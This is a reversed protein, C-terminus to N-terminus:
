PVSSDIIVSRIHSPFDRMVAQALLSGYSGGFLNVQDYGLALRIAEVDAANQATNYLALNHGDAVLREQCATLSEYVIRQVAGPDPEDLIDFLAGVFEPCELAPKSSGVGRQDFFVLDRDANFSGLHDALPAAHVVTKEGPGGSLFILPDPQSQEDQSKFIVTALHITESSSNRHDEPVIVYGCEVTEGEIHNAPIEFFCATQEFTPTFSPSTTATPESRVASGTETEIPKLPATSNIPLDADPDSTTQCAALLWILFILPILNKMKM